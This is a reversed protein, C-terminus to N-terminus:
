SIMELLPVVKARRLIIAEQTSYDFIYSAGAAEGGAKAVAARIRRSGGDTVKVSLGQSGMRVAVHFRKVEVDVSVVVESADTIVREPVGDVKWHPKTVPSGDANHLPTTRSFGPDSSNIRVGSQSAAVPPSGDPSKRPM